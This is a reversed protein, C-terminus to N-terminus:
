NSLGALAFREGFVKWSPVKAPQTKVKGGRRRGEESVKKIEDVGRRKLDGINM